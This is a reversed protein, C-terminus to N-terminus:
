SRGGKSSSLTAKLGLEVPRARSISAQQWEEPKKDAWLRPQRANADTPVCRLSHPELSEVGQQVYSGSAVPLEVAGSKAGYKDSFFAKSAVSAVVSPIFTAGQLTDRAWYNTKGRAHRFTTMCSALPYHSRRRTKLRHRGEGRSM